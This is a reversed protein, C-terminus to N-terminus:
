TSEKMMRRECVLTTRSHLEKTLCFKIKNKWLLRNMNLYFIRRKRSSAGYRHSDVSLMKMKLDKHPGNKALAGLTSQCSDAASRINGRIEDLKEMTEPLDDFCSNPNIDSLEELNDYARRLM